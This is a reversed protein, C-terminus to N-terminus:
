SAVVQWMWVPPVFTLYVTAAAAVLAVVGLAISIRRPWAKVLWRPDVVLGLAAGAVFGAAHARNDAGVFYGFVLTYLLWKLMDNRVLRGRTTGARHGAAAALGLLGCIAGSAGIGVADLGLQQSGYSAAVGTVMFAFLTPWRGFQEEVIPGVMALAFLNFALHIVGAHLFV